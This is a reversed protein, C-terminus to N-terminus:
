KSFDVIHEEALRFEANKSLSFPVETRNGEIEASEKRTFILTDYNQIKFIYLENTISTAYLIDEEVRFHGTIIGESISEELILIFINKDTFSLAPYGTNNGKEKLCYTKIYYNKPNYEDEYEPATPNSLEKLDKKENSKVEKFKGLLEKNIEMNKNNIASNESKSLTKKETISNPYNKKFKESEAQESTDKSCGAIFIMTIILISAITLSKKMKEGILGVALHTVLVLKLLLM